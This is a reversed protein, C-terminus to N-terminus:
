RDDEYDKDTFITTIGYKSLFTVLEEKSLGDVEDKDFVLIRGDPGSALVHMDKNFETMVQTVM